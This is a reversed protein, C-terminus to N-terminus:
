CALVSSQVSGTCVVQAVGGADLLPARTLNVAALLVPVEGRQHSPVPRAALPLEAAGVGAEPVAHHLLGRPAPAPRPGPTEGCLLESSGHQVLAQTEEHFLALYICFDYWM